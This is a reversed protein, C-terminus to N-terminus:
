CRTPTGRAPERAGYGSTAACTSNSRSTDNFSAIQATDNKAQAIKRVLVAGTPLPRPLSEKTLLREFASM